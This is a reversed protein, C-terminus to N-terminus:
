GEMYRIATEYNVFKNGSEMYAITDNIGLKLAREIKNESYPYNFLEFLKKIGKDPTDGLERLMEMIAEYFTKNLYHHCMKEDILSIHITYRDEILFTISNNNNKEDALEIAKIYEEKTRGGFDFNSDFTYNSINNM